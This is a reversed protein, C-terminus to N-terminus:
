DISKFQKAISLTKFFVFRASGYTNYHVNFENFVESYQFFIVIKPSNKLKNTTM